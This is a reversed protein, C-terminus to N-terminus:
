EPGGVEIKFVYVAGVEIDSVYLYNADSDVFIGVPRKFAAPGVAPWEDLLRGDPSYRRVVHADANTMFISGDPGWALHSGDFAVPADIEWASISKGFPDLRQWRKVNAGETVYYAGFEDRLVDVPENLQGPADGFVGVTGLLLGELDHLVLRGSGTNAIALIDIEDAQEFLALGRPHYLLSEPGGLKDLPKGEADFVYVWQRTSDLVWVRSDDTTVLALPEAFPGNLTGTWGGLLEDASFIVVGKFGTDAVYVHGQPGVAIDRPEVLSESLTMMYLLSVPQAQFDSTPPAVQLHPQWASGLPPWLHRPPVPEPREAGPPLWFFHIRSRPLTDQFLVRIEHLGAELSVVQEAYQKPAPLDLLLGGDLFLQASGVAQLDLSYFGTTPAELLGAWEVSYPRPLPTFHYYTDLFPDLQVLTPEGRWTPNAYYKGLLGNNTVPDSYFAHAPIASELQGPPQWSLRVQGRGDGSGAQLRFLHNGRALELDAVQEGAGNLVEFGDIELLGKAPATLRLRYIGYQEVYLIGEWEAVFPPTLPLAASWDVDITEVRLARVPTQNPQIGSGPWYRLALGQVSAIDAPSLVALHIAPPNEPKNSVTEFQGSPYLRQAEQYVWADDPHVFLAAPRSAETRIPLADPLSLLLHHPTHPSLFRVAPQNMLFPSLYFDYGPGLEAMKRGTITEPTSFANWVAFDNAQGVFYTHANLGLIYLGALGAPL